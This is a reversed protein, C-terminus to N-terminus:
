EEGGQAPATTVVVTKEAPLMAVIEDFSPAVCMGALEAELGERNLGFEHTWVPRGLTKEVAEHFVDFPMCLLRQNMQFAARQEHTMPKWLEDDAFAIAQEKTLMHDTNKM